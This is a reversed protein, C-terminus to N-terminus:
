APEDPPRPSSPRPKRFRAAIDKQALLRPVGANAEGYDARAEEMMTALDYRVLFDALSSLKIAPPPKSM